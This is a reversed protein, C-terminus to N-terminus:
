QKKKGGEKVEEEANITSSARLISLSQDSQKREGRREREERGEGEKACKKAKAYHPRKQPGM